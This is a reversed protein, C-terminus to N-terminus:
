RVGGFGAALDDRELTGAMGEHMNGFFGGTVAGDGNDGTQVFRTAACASGTNSIATM